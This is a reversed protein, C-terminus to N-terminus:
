QTPKGKGIQKIIAEAIAKFQQVHEAGSPDAALTTLGKRLKALAKKQKEIPAIASAAKEALRRRQTRVDDIASRDKTVGESLYEAVFAPTKALNGSLIQGAALLAGRDISTRIHGYLWTKDGEITDVGDKTLNTGALSNRLLDSQKQYFVQEAKIKKDLQKEYEAVTKLTNLAVLQANESACASMFLAPIIVLFLRHATRKSKPQHTM